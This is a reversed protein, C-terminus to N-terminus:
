MAPNLIHGSPGICDLLSTMQSMYGVTHQLPTALDLFGSKDYEYVRNVRSACHRYFNRSKYDPPLLVTTPQLDFQLAELADLQHSKGAMCYIGGCLTIQSLLGASVIVVLGYVIVIKLSHRTVFSPAPAPQGILMDDDIPEYIVQPNKDPYWAKILTFNVALVVVVALCLSTVIVHIIESAIMLTVLCSGLLIFSPVLVAHPTGAILFMSHYFTLSVAVTSQCVVAVFPIADFLLTLVAMSVVVSAAASVCPLVLVRYDNLTYGFVVLAVAILIGDAIALSQLTQDTASKSALQLGIIDDGLWSVDRVHKTCFDRVMVLIAEADFFRYYGTKPNNQQRACQVM